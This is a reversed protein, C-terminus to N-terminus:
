KRYIRRGQLFPSIDRRFTTQSENSQVANYGVLYFEESEADCLACQIETVLTVQDIRAM